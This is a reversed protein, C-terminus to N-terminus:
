HVSGADTQPETLNFLHHFLDRVLDAPDAHGKGEASLHGTLALAVAGHATARILAAVRDPDGARLEGSEQAAAVAAVMFSWSTEAQGTLEASAVTWPGFVLRFRQPHRLSWAVYNLTIAKLATGPTRREDATLRVSRAFEALERAAVAALLAQKDAFHKYPANHSVGARRGVERLTVADVGGGDLLDTAATILADRTNMRADYSKTSLTM